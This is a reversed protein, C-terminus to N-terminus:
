FKTRDIPESTGNAGATVRVTITYIYRSSYACAKTNVGNEAFIMVNYGGEDGFMEDQGFWDPGYAQRFEYSGAPLKIKINHGPTLFVASVFDSGSYIKIYTSYGDNPAKFTIACKHSAYAVNRYMEGSAPRQKCSEARAASDNYSGLATFMVYATYCKGQKFAADAAAYDIGNQCNKVMQASDKYSGLATFGSKAGSLDGKDMLAKAANYDITNQCEKAKEAADSFSGLKKFATLAEQIKSENMLAAAANYDITNQCEKAKEAAGTYDGLAEFAEKAEAYKGAKMLDSAATFDSMNQCNEAQAASDKYAGLKTFEEKARMLDGSNMLVFADEYRNSTTVANLITIFIVGAILVSACIALITMVRKRNPAIPKQPGTKPMATEQVAPAPLVSGCKICFRAEARNQEGCNSCQM